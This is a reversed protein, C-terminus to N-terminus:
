RDGNRTSPPLPNLLVAYRLSHSSSLFVPLDHLATSLYHLLDPNGYAGPDDEADIDLVVFLWADGTQSETLVYRDICPQLGGHALLGPFEQAVYRAAPLYRDASM